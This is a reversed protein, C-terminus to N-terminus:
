GLRVQGVYPSGTVDKIFVDAASGSDYVQYGPSIHVVPQLIPVFRQGNAHLGQIISQM